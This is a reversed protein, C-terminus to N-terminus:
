IMVIAMASRGLNTTAGANEDEHAKFQLATNSTANNIGRKPTAINSVRPFHVAVVSGVPGLRAWRLAKETGALQETWRAIYFPDISMSIVTEAPQTAYAQTGQMNPSISTLVENRVRPVGPEVSFSSVHYRTNTTVGVTESWVETLPTISLPAIGLEANTSWATPWPASEPSVHSAAMTRFAWQMLGGRSFEFQQLESVCGRFVWSERQSAGSGPMGKQVLWSRTRGSAASSDCLVDEDIYVVIAAHVLDNEAPAGPLAQDLTITNPTSVTDTAVVRRPFVTNVPYTGQATAYEIGVFDGYQYASADGVSVVTLTSGTSVTESVGRRIGGLAHSLLLALQYGPLTTAATDGSATTGGLGSGYVAFPFEPNDIGEVRAETAKIRSQNRMDELQAREVGSMDLSEAIHRLRVGNAVWDAADTPPTGATSEPFYTLLSMAAINSM